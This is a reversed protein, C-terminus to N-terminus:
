KSSEELYDTDIFMNFIDGKIGNINRNWMDTDYLILLVESPAAESLVAMGQPFM